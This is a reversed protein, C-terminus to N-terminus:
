SQTMTCSDAQSVHSCMWLQIVRTFFYFVDTSNRVTQHTKFNGFSFLGTPLSDQKLKFVSFLLSNNHNILNMNPPLLFDFWPNSFLLRRSGRSSRTFYDSSIMTSYKLFVVEEEVARFVQLSIQAISHFTEENM